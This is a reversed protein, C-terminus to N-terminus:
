LYFLASSKHHGKKLKVKTYPVATLPDTTNSNTRLSVGKEQLYDDLRVLCTIDELVDGERTKRQLIVARSKEKDEFLEMKVNYIPYSFGTEVVCADQKLDIIHTRRFTGDEFPEIITTVEQRGSTWVQTLVNGEIKTEIIKQRYQWNSGDDFSIALINDGFGGQESYLLSNVDFGRNTSYLFKNYKDKQFFPHIPASFHIVSEGKYRQVLTENAINPYIGDSIKSPLEEALWFESDDSLLLPIFAKMAWYPSTPSNYVECISLNQYTYGRTLRGDNTFINKDKWWRIQRAWIGKIEGLPMENDDLLALAGWFSSAAFRYILSRGQQLAAGDEAFWFQFSRAFLKSREVFKDAWDKKDGKIVKAYLLGYYHMAFGAYHDITRTTGDCYWGESLYYSDLRNLYDNALDDDVLHGYGVKKLGEQVMITFFLWNNQPYEHNQIDALWHILNSKETDTLPYFAHEPLTALLLGIAAMEVTRQDFYATKGWYDSHSPNTGNVLANRYLKWYHFEGGGLVLPIIGWLPRAVGELSSAKQDFSAAGENFDISAGQVEFYPILPKFMDNVLKQYDSKTSLANNDFPNYSNMM